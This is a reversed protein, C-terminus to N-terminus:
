GYPGAETASLIGSNDVTFRWFTGNPSQLHIWLPPPTSGSDLGLIGTLSSTVADLTSTTAALTASVADLSSSVDQLTSTVTTFSTSMNVFSSSMDLFTSSMVSLPLVQRQVWDVTASMSGSIVEGGSGTGYTSGTAPWGTGTGAVTNLYDQVYGANDMFNSSLQSVADYITGSSIDWAGMTSSLDSASANAQAASALAASASVAAFHAVGSVTALNGSLVAVGSVTASLSSSLTPITSSVTASLTASVANLNTELQLIVGSAAAADAAAWYNVVSGSPVPNLDIKPAWLPTYVFPM